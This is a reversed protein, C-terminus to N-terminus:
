KDSRIEARGTMGPRIDLDTNRLNLMVPFTAADGVFEGAQWGVRLVTSEIPNDPYAKLTVVATQGLFIKALDRESLNTTQFELQDTVLLTVIPSGSGVQSGQAVEVSLVTGKWPAVLYIDDQAEIAKELNNQALTLQIQANALEAEALALEDPDIGDELVDYATQAAKLKAEAVALDAPPVGAALADYTAQAQVLQAQAVALQAEKQALILDTPSGTLSNL